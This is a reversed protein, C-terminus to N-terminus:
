KDGKVAKAVAAIDTWSTFFMMLLSGTIPVGFSVLVSQWGAKMVLAFVGTGIGALGFLFALLRRMSNAGNHQFFGDAKKETEIEENKKDEEM